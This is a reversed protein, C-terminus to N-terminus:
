VIVPLVSVRLLLVERRFVHLHRPQINALAGEQELYNCDEVVNLPKGPPMLPLSGVQRHLLRWLHPNSGQTPFIGHLHAHCGVGTNKGPSNWPCLLRTPQLGHPRLSCPGVTTVWCTLMRAGHKFPKEPAEFTFFGDALTVSKPEIGSDPLDGPFPLPLGGWYEQRPLGM